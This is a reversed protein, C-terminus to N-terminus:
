EDLSFSLKQIADDFTVLEDKFFHYNIYLGHRRLESHWDLELIFGQWGFGKREKVKVILKPCFSDEYDAQYSGSSAISKELERLIKRSLIWRAAM